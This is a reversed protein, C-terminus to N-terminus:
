EDQTDRVFKLQAMWKSSLDADVQKSDERNSEIEQNTKMLEDEM